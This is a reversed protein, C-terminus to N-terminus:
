PIRLPHYPLAPSLPEHVHVVDFRKERFHRWVKWPSTLLGLRNESGNGDISVVGGFGTVPVAASARLEPLEDSVPGVVEVDDGMRRFESALALVHKNVGGPRSLDYPTVLCIRM